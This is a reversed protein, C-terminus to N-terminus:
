DAPEYIEQFIKPKCPYFHIGDPEPMIWDGDELIVSQGQHVTHVHPKWHSSDRLEETECSPGGRCVSSLDVGEHYQEAYVEVPKRRFRPM